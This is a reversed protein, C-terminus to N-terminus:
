LIFLTFTHNQFGPAYSGTRVYARAYRFFAVFLLYFIFLLYIFLYIFLYIIFSHNNFLVEIVEISVNM